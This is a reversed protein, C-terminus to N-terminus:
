LIVNAFYWYSLMTIITGFILGLALGYGIGESRVIRERVSLLDLYQKREM